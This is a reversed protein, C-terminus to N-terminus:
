ICKVGDKDVIDVDREAAFCSKKAYAVVRLCNALHQQVSIVDTYEHIVTQLLECVSQVDRDTLTPEQERMRLMAIENQLLSVNQEAEARERCAKNYLEHITGINEGPIIQGAM